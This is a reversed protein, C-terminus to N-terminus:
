AKLRSRDLTALLPPLPCDLAATVLRLLEVEPIRLTGDANVTDTCAKILRPKELARLQRLRELSEGVQRTSLGAVPLPAELEVGLWHKGADFAAAASDAGGAHAVMSLVAHADAKVEGVSKYVSRVPRGADERLHQRLFTHLVFERLTVRKDAEIVAQHDALFADRLPQKQARLVPLALEALDLGAARGLPAAMRYAEATGAAFEEGRRAALAALEHKRVAEDPECALAFLLQAAGEPTAMRTRLLEPISALLKRAYDVHAAAPRGVADAVVAATLAAGVAGSGLAGLPEHVKVINGGGDLVAVARDSPSVATGRRKRYDLRQFQPHTRRIREQIPPHTPFSWWHSGSPMFFMHAFASAHAANVSTGTKLALVSDLAGAIGDPNRTFQVSAADALLERHRSISAKIADAALMGPFGVMALVIAALAYIADGGTKERGLKLASQASREFLEESQEGVWSLGSLLAALRINLAMDGNLIHSFEHAVVGQLEDRSLQTVAGLTVIIVAENPSHGAVLANVSRERDLLYVPPSTIGSAIAMEDVINILRRESANCRSPDVYRAGLYHAVTYGGDRLAWMRSATVVLIIAAKLGGVLLPVEHPVRMVTSAYASVINTVAPLPERLPLGAFLALVAYGLIALLCYSAVVVLVAFGFALMLLRTRRRADAQAEFFDM